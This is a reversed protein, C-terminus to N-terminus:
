GTAPKAQSCHARQTLLPGVLRPHNLPVFQDRLSRVSHHAIWDVKPHEAQHHGCAHSVRGPPRQSSGNKNKKDAVANADAGFFLKQAFREADLEILVGATDRGEKWAVQLKTSWGAGRGRMGRPLGARWFRALFISAAQRGCAPEPRSSTSSM